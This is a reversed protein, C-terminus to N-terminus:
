KSAIEARKPYLVIRDKVFRLTMAKLLNVAFDPSIQCFYLSGRFYERFKPM